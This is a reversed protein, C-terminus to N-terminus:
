GHLFKFRNPMQHDIESIVTVIFLVIFGFYIFTHLLGAAPDRLLTQMWVGSRYSKVRKEANKRTTRRDDPQGREYNRMRLSALWATVLLMTAVTGYFAVKVADPVGTFVERQVKSGDYWGTIVPMIGSAIVFFFMLVGIAFVVHHPRPRRM